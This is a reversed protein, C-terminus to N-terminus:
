QRFEGLPSNRLLTLFEKHSYFNYIHNSEDLLHARIKDANEKIDNGLTNYEQKIKEIDYLELGHLVM